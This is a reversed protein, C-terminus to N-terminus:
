RIKNNLYSIRYDVHANPLYKEVMAKCITIDENDTKPGFMIEMGNFDMESIDLFISNTKEINEFGNKNNKALTELEQLINVSYPGRGKFIVIRAENQTDWIVNKTAILSDLNLVPYKSKYREVFKKEDDEEIYNIKILPTNEILLKSDKWLIFTDEKAKDKINNITMNPTCIESKYDFPIKEIEFGIRIDQIGKSLMNWLTLNEKSDITWCSVFIKSAFDGYDSVVGEEKDDVNKLSNFLLTKNELIKALTNISTYQYIKM